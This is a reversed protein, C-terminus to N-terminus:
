SDSAPPASANPPLVAVVETSESLGTKNDFVIWVEVLALNDPLKANKGRKGAVRKEAQERLFTLLERGVEAREERTLDNDSKDREDAYERTWSKFMKKVKPATISTMKRVPLAETKGSDDLTALYLYNESEDPDSYMPFHSLPFFDQVWLSLFVVFPVSFFSHKWFVWGAFSAITLIAALVPDM